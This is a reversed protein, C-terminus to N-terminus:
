RATLASGRRSRRCARQGLPRGQLAFPRLTQNTGADEGTAILEAVRSGAAPAAKFGWSGWGCSVIFGGISDVPGMIPAYDPSMDCLGAWQRLVKVNKLCPFLELTHKALEEMPLLASQQSYTPYPDVGGGIM